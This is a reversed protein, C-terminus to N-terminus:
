VFCYGAECVEDAQDDSQFGSRALDELPRLTQSIYVPQRVGIQTWDRIARDVQVAQQWDAPRNRYMDHLSKTSHAFCANCMSKPPMPLGRDRYYQEVQVTTMKMEILPYRFRVYKQVPAKARFQEEYSFGIWKEVIGEGPRTSRSSIGCREELQRRVERDMPAIKYYHTCSQRLKGRSGDSARTWYPPNDLHTGGSNPLSLIDQLLNPGDVTMFFIGSMRCEEAMMQVHAYTQTNEMGPDANLVVLNDPMPIEKRLLMWLLATSQRGASYNLVTLKAPAPHSQWGSHLLVCHDLRREAVHAKWQRIRRRVTTPSIRLKRAIESINQGRNWRTIIAFEFSRAGRYHYTETSHRQCRKCWLRPSGRRSRGKRVTDRSYCHRCRISKTMPNPHFSSYYHDTFRDNTRMSSPTYSKNGSKGFM